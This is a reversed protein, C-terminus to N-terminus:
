EAEMWAIVDSIDPVEFPGWVEAVIAADEHQGLQLLHEFAQEM